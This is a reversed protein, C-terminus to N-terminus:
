LVELALEDGALAEALAMQAEDDELITVECSEIFLRAEFSLLADM